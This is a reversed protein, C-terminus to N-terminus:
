LILDWQKPKDGSLCRILNGLTRNVVKTQGNTQPHCTSSFNLVINFKCWLTLWFHSLFKSNRNLTITELVRHLRIIEKFLLNAVQVADNTKKCYIFHSM